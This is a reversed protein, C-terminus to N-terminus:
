FISDKVKSPKFKLGSALVGELQQYERVAELVQAYSEM